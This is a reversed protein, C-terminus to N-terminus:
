WKHWTLLLSPLMFIVSLWFLSVPDRQSSRQYVMNALPSLGLPLYVLWTPLGDYSLFWSSSLLLCAAVVGSLGNLAM